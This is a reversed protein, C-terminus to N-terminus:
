ASTLPLPNKSNLLSNKDTFGSRSIQPYRRKDATLNKPIQKRKSNM